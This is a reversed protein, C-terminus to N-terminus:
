KHGRGEGCQQCTCPLGHKVCLIGNDLGLVRGVGRRHHVIVGHEKIRGMVLVICLSIPEFHQIPLKISGGVHHVPGVVTGNSRQLVESPTLTVVSCPSQLDDFTIALEIHVTRKMAISDAHQYGVRRVTRKFVRDALRQYPLLLMPVVDVGRYIDVVVSLSIHIPAVGIKIIHLEVFVHNRGRAVDYFDALQLSILFPWPKVLAVVMIVQGKSGSAAGFADTIGHAIRRGTRPVHLSVDHTRGVTRTTVMGANDVVLSLRVHESLIVVQQTQFHFFVVFATGDRHGLHVIISVPRYLFHRIELIHLHFLNFM